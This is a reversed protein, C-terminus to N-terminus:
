NVREDGGDPASAVYLIKREVWNRKADKKFM